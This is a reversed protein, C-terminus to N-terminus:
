AGAELFADIREEVASRLPGEPTDELIEALFARVLLGRAADAPIGRSRLYFLADGDIDGATAGHSCQVDDAYIELVPKADIEARGSLLLARNLQHGDTKQAGEAVVIHGQFVGRAQGGIAGKYVQRSTAGPARHEIRSTHDALQRGSIAYAGRLSLEAGEGLLEAEIQNRSLRAGFTFVTSELAAERGLRAPVFWIHHADAAEEQLKTHRLRGGTEVEVETVGNVFYAGAGLGIHREVVHASGGTEVIIRNRSQAVPGTPSPVTAHVIEIPEDRVGEIALVYGDGAMAANLAVLPEGEADAAGNPGAWRKVPVTSLDERLFGNVLVIRPGECLFPVATEADPAAPRFRQRALPRLSTYKWAEVRNTPFGQAAFAEFAAGREGPLSARISEFAERYTDVGLTM